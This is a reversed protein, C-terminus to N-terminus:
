VQREEPPVCMSAPQGNRHLHRAFDQLLSEAAWSSALPLSSAPPTSPAVRDLEFERAVEDILRPPVPKQEDVYANILAHECLV